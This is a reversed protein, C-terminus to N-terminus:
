NIPVKIRNWGTKLSIIEEDGPRVFFGAMNAPIKIKYEMNKSTLKYNAEISGRITPYKIESFELDGLQPQIRVEAFGPKTPKIGWMCRPIINAPVAGWAHNWDSNPKYKMDWTEMTITSGSKIMNWWSRDHTATLLSKAYDAEGANYLGELLYQAGYVSCAMGRSKIFKIVSEEYKGPVLGVVLPLMNAHLSAHSSGEGDIYIGRADDFLIENISKKVKEALKRFFLQDSKKDLLGAIETMIELNWHYFSNVVTNVDVMHYGDREGLSTALQWGTDNQGPPWDVIDQLRTDPNSFGLNRMSEATLKESNVSILGDERALFYLTKAKLLEYYHAISELNGTYLFDKYFMPVTHLIWETPWTPHHMFYENTLRAMSYERDTCYHGLQNIYADGEYPIRERDGDIYLGAFSTAKISYKCLEWVQNLITDSCSFDSARDDFTYSLTKRVLHINEIEFLVNEIECYRFPLVVGLSDPLQVASSATNRENLPLTVQYTTKQPGIILETKQYRVSGPPNRDIHFDATLKEGFHFILTDVKTPKLSLELTGFGAKGFDFFYHGESDKTWKVPKNPSIQFKNSTSAYGKFRGTSFQQTSSYPTPKEQYDWIRVRWNYNTNETLNLGHVEVEVSGNGSIKGSDWIDIKKNKINELSSAVVIQYATQEIAKDPIIWTFEPKNDLIKVYEPQLIFETMLGTPNDVESQCATFTLLCVGIFYWYKLKMHSILTTFSEEEVLSGTGHDPQIFFKM